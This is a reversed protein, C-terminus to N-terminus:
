VRLGALENLRVGTYAGLWILSPLATQVSHRSSRVEPLNAELLMGLDAPTFPHDSGRGAKRGGIGPLRTRV